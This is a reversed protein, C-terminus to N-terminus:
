DRNNETEVFEEGRIWNELEVDLIEESAKIEGSFPNTNLHPSDVVREIEDEVNKSPESVIM